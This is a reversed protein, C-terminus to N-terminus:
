DYDLDGLVREDCEGALYRRAKELLERYDGLPSLANMAETNNDAFLCASEGRNYFEFYTNRPGVRRAIAVGEMATPNVRTPEIGEQEMAELFRSALTMAYENPPEAGYSNWNAKLAKMAELRQRAETHTM